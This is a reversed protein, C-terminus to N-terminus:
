WYKYIQKDFRDFNIRVSSNIRTFTGYTLYVKTVDFNRVLISAFINASNSNM